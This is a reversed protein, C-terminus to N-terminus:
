SKDREGFGREAHKEPDAEPLEEEGESFRGRQHKEPDEDPLEEEGESFRGLREDEPTKEPRDEGEAFDPRDHAEDPHEIPEYPMGRITVSWTVTKVHPPIV